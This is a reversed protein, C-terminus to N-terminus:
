RALYGGDIVLDTGTVFSSEDSALFVVGHSIEVAEGIRGLPTREIMTALADEGDQETMPTRILGPVITNARIKDAAHSLAAARTLLRVAGKTAQYAVYGETGAVGWISSVNIISGGGARRMHPIVHRMGLLIATQNVAVVREWGADTEDEIGAAGGVTGANNVLVHVGGFRETALGVAAAWDAASAVDLHVYAVELGDALLKRELARGADDLLDGFVVRAGEEALRRTHSAGQGRAGGTVIAVKGAVRGRTPATTM